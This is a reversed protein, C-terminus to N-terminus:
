TPMGSIPFREPHCLALLGGALTYSAVGDSLAESRHRKMFAQMRDQEAESLRTGACHAGQFRLWDDACTQGPMRNMPVAVLRYVAGALTSISLIHKREARRRDRPTLTSDLALAKRAVPNGAEARRMVFAIAELDETFAGTDDCRQLQLIERDRDLCFLNWGEANAAASDERTWELKSNGM